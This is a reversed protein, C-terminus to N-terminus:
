EAEADVIALIDDLLCEQRQEFMETETPILRIEGSPEKADRVVDREFSSSRHVSSRQVIGPVLWRRERLGIWRQRRLALDDMTLASSTHACHDSSRRIAISSAD